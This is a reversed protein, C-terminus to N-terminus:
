DRLRARCLAELVFATTLPASEWEVVLGSDTRAIFFPAEDWAGTLPDQHALLYDIGRDILRSSDDANLLTLVALATNLHPDGRDWFASGDGCDIADDSIEEALRQVAPELEPIPGEAYARSVCYHFIYSDPYYLSIDSWRSRHLGDSVANNIIAVSDYFGPTDVRGHRALAYLVNANVVLDVDNGFEPAGPERYMLWTLYAGSNDPLWDPAFRLSVGATHRWDAFFNEFAETTGPGEDLVQDDLLAAYTVATVDADAPIAMKSPFIELNIPMRTGGLSPGQMLEFLAKELASERAGPNRDYPWFGYTGADPATDASEFRELCQIARKRMTHASAAATADIELAVQTDHNVLALAHHVFAVVFPSLERIRYRPMNQFHFDQSWNGAYDFNGPVTSDQKTQSSELYQIAREIPSATRPCGALVAATALLMLAFWVRERFHRLRIEKDHFGYEISNGHHKHKNM